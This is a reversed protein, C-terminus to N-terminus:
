SRGHSRRSPGGGGGLVVEVGGWEYKIPTLCPAVSRRDVVQAANRNLGAWGPLLECAAAAAAAGAAAPWLHVPVHRLRERVIPDVGAVVGVEDAVLEAADGGGLLVGIYGRGGGWRM